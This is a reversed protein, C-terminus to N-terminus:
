EPGNSSTNASPSVIWEDGSRTLTLATGNPLDILRLNESVMRPPQPPRRLDPSFWLIDASYPIRTGYAFSHPLTSHALSVIELGQGQDISWETKGSTQNMFVGTSMYSSYRPVIVVVMPELGVFYSTSLSYESTGTAGFQKKPAMDLTQWAGIRKLYRYAKHAAKEADIEKGAQGHWTLKVQSGGMGVGRSRVRIQAQEGSAMWYPNDEEIQQYEVWEGVLGLQKCGTLLVSLGLAVATTLKCMM